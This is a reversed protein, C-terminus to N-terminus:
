LKFVGMVIGYHYTDVDEIEQTKMSSFAAM